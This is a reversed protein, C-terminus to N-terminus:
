RSGGGSVTSSRPSPLGPKGAIPPRGVLTDHVPELALGALGWIPAYDLRILGGVHRRASSYDWPAEGLLARLFRGSGYEVGFFGAAYALARLPAPVRRRRLADHLPEFLPQLLGYIPFMWLSTRSPLRRDRRRAFDHVGTFCVEGCWGIVGYALFRGGPEPIEFRGPPREIVAGEV